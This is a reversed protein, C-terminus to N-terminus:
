ILKEVAELARHYNARGTDAQEKLADAHALKALNEPTNLVFAWGYACTYEINASKHKFNFVYECVGARRVNVAIFERPKINYPTGSKSLWVTDLDYLYEANPDPDKNRPSSEDGQLDYTETIM